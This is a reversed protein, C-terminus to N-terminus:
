LVVKTLSCGLVEEEYLDDKNVKIEAFADRESEKALAAQMEEQEKQTDYSLLIHRLAGASILKETTM